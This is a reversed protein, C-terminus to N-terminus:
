SMEMEYENTARELTRLEEYLSVVQQMADYLLHEEKTLEHDRCTNCVRGLMFHVEQLQCVYHNLVSAGTTTQLFEQVAPVESLMLERTM